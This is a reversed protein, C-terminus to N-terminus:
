PSLDRNKNDFLALATLVRQQHALTHDPTIEIGPLRLGYDENNKHLKLVWYCLKSLRQETNGDFQQWDLWLRQERYSAYHKTQLTQGKAYAKWFVHKLSDGPQYQKFQYFDDSGAVAIIEGEVAETAAAAVLECALPRPYVVAQIDLALLSWCKLLGLPYLTEIRLRPPTFLGRKKAPLQLQIIKERSDSLSLLRSETEPWSFNIDFYDKNAQASVALEFNIDDGVFAPFARITTISLGSLNAFTHLITVIFVSALLFVLTFVMNNQYNIAAILMVLLLLAFLFGTRSPFIFLGRQNLTISRAPPIRRDLWGKYHKGVIDTIAKLM